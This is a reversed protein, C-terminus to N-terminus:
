NEWGGREPRYDNKEAAARLLPDYKGLLERVTDDSPDGLLKEREEVTVSGIIKVHRANKRKGDAIRRLSGDAVTLMVTTGRLEVGCVIFVRRRDRGATSQVVAGLYLCEDKLCDSM